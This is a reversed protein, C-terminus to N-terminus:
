SDLIAELEQMLLHVTTAPHKDHYAREGHTELLREARKRAEYKDGNKELMSYIDPRNKEYKGIGCKDFEENLKDIYQKRDIGTNLYEFHLLFWLEIAENSWAVKIGNAEAKHIANDFNHAPFSDRDFVAWVEGYPISVAKMKKITWDVLDITNRGTGEIELTVYDNVRQAEYKAAIRRKIEEFYLPETRAGECVILYKLPNKERISEKRKTREARRKKFIDDSGVLIVV